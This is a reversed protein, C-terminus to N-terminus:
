VAPKKMAGFANLRNVYKRDTELIHNTLWTCMLNKLDAVSATGKKFKQEYNHVLQIMREHSKKHEIYDPYDAERMLNEEFQFHYSVYKVLGDVIPTVLEVVEKHGSNINEEARHLANILDVLVKHQDDISKIGIQYKKGWEILNM